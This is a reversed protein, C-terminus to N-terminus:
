YAHVFGSGGSRKRSGKQGAVPRRKKKQGMIEALALGYVCLDWHHNDKGKPCQWYGREDRYEACLQKAFEKGVGSHFTIAGKAGPEHQLKLDLEDKYITVNLTYLNLGGPIPIKKGVSSPYFDIRKVNWPNEMTRRGKLPKFFKYKRCFDYIEVTRSHKPRDPNTGGGSDIFGSIARYVKGEADLYDLQSIDVLNRREMVFGHDIVTVPLDPGWGFAWVQYFFGTRQTDALVVLCSTGAPVIGRPLNEDRLRLIFDEQRDKQEHVYDVAEYGNALAKKETVGGEEAALHAAAIEHLPVDPSDFGRLHFGIRSPRPVDRGKICVWHPDALLQMRDLETLQVGCQSCTYAIETEPTIDAATLGEPIVLGEYEPKFLRECSPCRHRYEWVQVCSLVGKWIFLEAPTSAFFRKYRGKYLRNRKKILTIPDAERGTREPYKDVEDGFCHKAAFSAMSSASNAHAPRITVGHSLRIRSLTTDAEKEGVYKKLRRSAKLMPIIKGGVIKDATNETPMLYYVDGPDVDIAWHMCNLMTNTKAAQEPGSFWIERVWPLCYADMIKVAHPALEHRWPGDHPAETMIRYQAAHESVKIKEPTRMRGRVAEPLRKLRYSKGALRRRVEPPLYDPVPTSNIVQDPM